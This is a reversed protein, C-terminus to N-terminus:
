NKGARNFVAGDFDFDVRFPKATPVFNIVKGQRKGPIMQNDCTEVENPTMTRIGRREYVSVRQLAGGPGNEFVVRDLYAHTIPNPKTPEQFNEGCTPVNDVVEWLPTSPRVLVYPLEPHAGDDSQVPTPAKLDEIFLATQTYGQGGWGTLCVLIERRSASRVKHCKETPVGEKYWLMKWKGSDRTLLATGVFNFVHLECGSMALAADDSGPSLFSGRIVRGLTWTGVWGQRGEFFASCLGECQIEQGVIVHGPCVAELMEIGGALKPNLTDDPFITKPLGASQALALAALLLLLALPAVAFHTSRNSPPPM